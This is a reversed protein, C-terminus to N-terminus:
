SKEIESSPDIDENEARVRATREEEALRKAQVFEVFANRQAKPPRSRGHWWKQKM